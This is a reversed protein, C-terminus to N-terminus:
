RDALLQQQWAEGGATHAAANCAAAARREQQLRAPYGEVFGVWVDQLVQLLWRAQALRQEGTVASTDNAAMGQLSLVALMLNGTLCGLDFAVPGITAFEYDILFM